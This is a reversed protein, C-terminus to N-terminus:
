SEWYVICLSIRQRAFLMRQLRSLPTQLDTIVSSSLSGTKAGLRGSLVFIFILWVLVLGLKFKIKNIEINM